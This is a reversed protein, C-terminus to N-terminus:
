IREFKLQLVKKTQETIKVREATRYGVVWLIGAEDALIPVRDRRDGPIKVDQMFQAVKKMGKMGSPQFRDGRQRPRVTLKGDLCGFDLDAIFGNDGTTLGSRETVSADIRWGPILTKGPIKLPYEGALVPFPNLPSIDKGLLNRDYDIAFVLEYPLNIHKGAPKDMAQMIEEIHRAEIDKLDGAVTEIAQRLLYRRVSVPLKLLAKKDMVIVDGQKDAVKPWYRAAEKELHAIDDGAIKATRQLAEIIGSNYGKLLPLLELRVRNRLPETSLNTADQHPKLEFRDCYAGTEARRVTLLPRVIKLEKGSVRRKTVPRLGRLGRTGTGRVLHLLITEVHDDLTHGVAVSTAGVAAATEVLFNYRVERAAEELSLGHQKQYAAVDRKEFTAPIGLSKALRAVYRADGASEKGRLQHDLHAVHLKIGLEPKLQHLLHLLCVSDQGGSVAVLLTQGRVTLRNDEIFGLVRQDLSQQKVPKGAM